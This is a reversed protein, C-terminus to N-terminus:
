MCLYYSDTTKRKWEGSEKLWYDLCLPKLTRNAPPSPRNGARDCGDYWTSIMDPFGDGTLDMAMWVQEDKGSPSRIRSHDTLVKVQSTDVDVGRVALGNGWTSGTATATAASKDDYEFEIDYSVGLKCTDYEGITVKTARAQGKYGSEDAVTFTDGVEPAVVGFCTFKQTTIQTYLCARLSASSGMRPREIRIVKGQRDPKARAFSSAVVAVGCIVTL